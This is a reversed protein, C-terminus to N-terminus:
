KVVVVKHGSPAATKIQNSLEWRRLQDLGLRCTNTASDYDTSVVRFITGDIGPNPLNPAPRVDDLMTRPTADLIRILKGPKLMWPDLMRAGGSWSNAGADYFQIPRRVNLTGANLAKKRSNLFADRLTGATAANTPDDKSVTVTRTFGGDFLEPAMANGLWTTTVHWSNLDASDRYRYFVFNRLDEGNPQGEFGDVTSALYGWNNPWTAYEFRFGHRTGYDETPNSAGWASEWIAWYANTQVTAILENLIDAATTGDPYKLDLIQTTDSTDIYVDSARVSGSWPTNPATIHWGAVLFRGVVDEVVQPVTVYNTTYNGATVLAAGTRDQRVGIVVPNWWRAEVQNDRATEGPVYDGVGLDRRMGLGIWRANTDTFSTAIVNTKVSGGAVSFETVDVLPNAAIGVIVSFNAAQTANPGSGDHTTSFRAIPQDYGHSDWRWSYRQLAGAALIFYNLTAKSTLMRRTEDKTNDWYQLGGSDGPAGTEGWFDAEGNWADAASDVYWVPREIDTAAVMSGLAGIQWVDPEVQRAPDEIRGEWAIEMTRLDVIQIRGFLDSLRSFGLPDPDALSGLGRPVRLTLDAGAYGGPVVSRFSVDDVWNTVWRDVSSIIQYFRVGLPVPLSM